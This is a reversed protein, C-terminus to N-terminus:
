SGLRVSMSTDGELSLHAVAEQRDRSISFGAGGALRSGAPVSVSVSLADPHVMPQRVIDLKYNSSPRLHGALGVSVIADGGQPITVFASYAWVGLERTANLSLPQGNLTAYTYLWPSYFTVWCPNAGPTSTPLDNNGIIYPNQGSSPATNILKLTETATLDGTAPSYAVSYSIQRHLYWDIKNEGTNQTTVALLDTTPSPAPFSGAVNIADFLHETEANTSALLIDKHAFAPYLDKVVDQLSPLSGDTFRDWVTRTVNSLFNERTSGSLENYEDHLLVGAANGATLPTPWPPVEVPGTARLLDALAFPDVSIVGDVNRGREQPYLNEIVGAVTPFDPSMTVNAWNLQPAFQSYREVYDAPAILKITAPNGRSELTPTGGFLVLKLTGEDATVIGYNGVVGGSARSEAESQMALFYVKPGDGGLFEVAARVGALALTAEHDADAVRSQADVLRSAIPSVLLSSHAGSLQRDALQLKHQATAVTSSLKSLLTILKKGRPLSGPGLASNVSLGVSSVEAGVHGAARLARMQQYVGPVLDAPSSWWSDLSSNAKSFDAAAIRLEGVAAQRNENHVSQIAQDLEDIGSRLSSSSLGAALAGLVTALAAAGVVVAALV